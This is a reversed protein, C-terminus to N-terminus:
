EDLIVDIPVVHEVTDAEKGSLMFMVKFDSGANQRVFDALEPLETMDVYVFHGYPLGDESYMFEFPFVGDNEEMMDTGYFVHVCDDQEINPTVNRSSVSVVSYGDFCSYPNKVLNITLEYEQTSATGDFGVEFDATVIVGNDTDVSDYGSVRGYNYSSAADYRNVFGGEYSSFDLEIGTLSYQIYNLEDANIMGNNQDSVAELYDFSMRSNQIFRSIFIEKWNGSDVSDKGFDEYSLALQTIATKLNDGMIFQSPYEYEQIGLAEYDIIEETDDATRGEPTNDYDKLYVPDDFILYDETKDDTSCATMSLVAAVAVGYVSFKWKGKM